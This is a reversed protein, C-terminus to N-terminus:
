LCVHIYESNNIDGVEKEAESDSSSSDSLNDSSCSEASEYESKKISRQRAIARPSVRQPYFSPFKSLSKARRNSKVEDLKGGEVSDAWLPQLIYCTMLLKSFM